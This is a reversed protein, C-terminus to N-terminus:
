SPTSMRERVRRAAPAPAGAPWLVLLPLSVDDEVTLQVIGDHEPWGDPM